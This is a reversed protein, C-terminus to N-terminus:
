SWRKELPWSYTLVVERGKAGKGSYTASGTGPPRARSRTPNAAEAEGAGTQTAATRHAAGGTPEAGRGARGGRTTVTPAPTVTSPTNGATRKPAVVTASRTRDGPRGTATRTWANGGTTVKGTAGQANRGRQGIEKPDRSTAISAKGTRRRTRSRRKKAQNWTIGHGIQEVLAGNRTGPGDLRLPRDPHGPPRKRPEERHRRRPHARNRAGPGEMRHPRDAPHPRERWRRGAGPGRRRRAAASWTWGDIGARDARQHHSGRGARRSPKGTGQMWRRSRGLEKCSHGMPWLETQAAPACRRGGAGLGRVAWMPHARVAPPRHRDAQHRREQGPGPLYSHAPQRGGRRPSHDHHLLGPGAPAPHRSLQGDRLRLLHPRLWAVWDQRRLGKAAPKRGPRGRQRESGTWAQGRERAARGTREAGQRKTGLQSPATHERIRGRGRRQVPSGPLRPSRGDHGFGDAELGQMPRPRRMQPGRQHRGCPPVGEQRSEVRHQPTIARCPRRAEEGWPHLCRRPRHTAVDARWPWGPRRRRQETRRVEHAARGGADGRMAAGGRARTRVARCRSSSSGGSKTATRFPTCTPPLSGPLCHTGSGEM